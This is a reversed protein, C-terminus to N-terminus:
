YELKSYKLQGAPITGLEQNVSNFVTKCIYTYIYIYIYIYIYLQEMKLICFYVCVSAHSKSMYKLLM